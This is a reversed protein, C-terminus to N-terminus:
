DPVWIATISRYHKGGPEFVRRAFYMFGFVWAPRDHAPLCCFNSRWLAFHEVDDGDMGRLTGALM